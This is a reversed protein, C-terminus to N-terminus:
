GRLVDGARAREPDGHHFHRMVGSCCSLRTALALGLGPKDGLLSVEFSRSRSGHSGQRLRGGTRFHVQCPGVLVALPSTAPDRAGLVRTPLPLIRTVRMPHAPVLVLSYLAM